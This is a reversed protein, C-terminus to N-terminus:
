ICNSSRGSSFSTLIKPILFPLILSTISSFLSLRPTLTVKHKLETVKVGRNLKNEEIVESIKGKKIGLIKVENLEPLDDLQIQLSLQSGETKTIYVDINNFLNSDWLKKIATSIKVGGTTFLSATIKKQPLNSVGFQIKCINKPWIKCVLM